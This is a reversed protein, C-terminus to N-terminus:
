RDKACPKRRRTWRQGMRRLSSALFDLSSGDGLGGEGTARWREMLREPEGCRWMGVGTEWGPGGRARRRGDSTDEAVGMTDTLGVAASESEVVDTFVSGGCSDRAGLFDLAVADSSCSCVRFPPFTSPGRVGEVAEFDKKGEGSAAWERAALVRLALPSPPAPVAAM